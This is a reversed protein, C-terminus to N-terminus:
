FWLFKPNHWIFLGVALLILAAVILAVKLADV